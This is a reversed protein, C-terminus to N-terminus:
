GVGIWFRSKDVGTELNPVRNELVGGNGEIIKRSPENTVDCALLVRDISLEKAKQLALALIKKGYGRGRKGPRIDYGIHGGIALLHENLRHRISLHGIYEGGDVLWFESQPVYGHPLNEGRAHSCEREVFLGFDAKLESISLERYRRTTVDDASAKYEEIAEIFSNKYEVSPLVLEM